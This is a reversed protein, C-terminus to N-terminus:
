EGAERLNDVLVTVATEALVRGCDDCAQVLIRHEGDAYARTNVPFTQTASSCLAKVVGDVQLQMYAMRDAPTVKAVVSMEGRATERDRPLAVEVLLPGAPEAEAVTVPTAAAAMQAEEAVPAYHRHLASDAVVLAGLVHFRTRATLSRGPGTKAEFLYSPIKRALGFYRHCLRTDEGATDYYVSLPFGVQGMWSALRTGAAKCEHGLTGLRSSPGITQIFNGRYSAKSSHAPLEHMDIVAHPKASEVAKIIARVEPQTGAGWSRNLDAGAANTRRGAAVGDPNAIPVLVWTLQRLLAQELEGQSEAFHKALALCATTGSTETGHQRAIVFVRVTSELPVEPDRVMVQVLPRGQRSTGIVSVAIRPSMQLARVQVMTGDFSPSQSPCRSVIDGLIDARCVGLCAVAVLLAVGTSVRGPKM